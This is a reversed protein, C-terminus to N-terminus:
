SSKMANDVVTVTRAVELWLDANDATLTSEGSFLIIHRKLDMTMSWSTGIYGDSTNSSLHIKGKSQYAANVQTIFQRSSKTFRRVFVSDLSRTGLQSPSIM